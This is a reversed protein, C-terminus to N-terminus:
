KIARLYKLGYIFFAAAIVALIIKGPWHGILKNIIEGLGLIEGLHPTLLAIVLSLAFILFLIGRVTEAFRIARGPASPHESPSATPATDQTAKAAKQRAKAAKKEIKAAAKLTKKQLDSM